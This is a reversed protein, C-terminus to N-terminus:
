TAGAFPADVEFVSGLGAFGLVPDLAEAGAFDARFDAGFGCVLLALPFVLGEAEAFGAEPSLRVAELGFLFFYTGGSRSKDNDRRVSSSLVASRM